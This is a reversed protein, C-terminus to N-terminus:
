KEDRVGYITRTRIETEWRLKERGAKGNGAEGRRRRSRRREGGQDGLWNGRRGKVVRTRPLPKRGARVDATPLIVTFRNETGIKKMTKLPQEMAMPMICYQRTSVRSAATMTETSRENMVFAILSSSIANRFRRTLCTLKREQERHVAVSKRKCTQNPASNPKPIQRQMPATKITTHYVRARLTQPAASCMQSPTNQMTAQTRMM